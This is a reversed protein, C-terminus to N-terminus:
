ALFTASTSSSSAASITGNTGTAFVQVLKAGAAVGTVKLTVAGAASTQYGVTNFTTDLTAATWNAGADSSVKATYTFPDNYSVPQQFTVTAKGGAALSSVVPATQSTPWLVAGGSAVWSPGSRITTASFGSVPDPFVNYTMEFSDVKKANFMRKGVKALAVRPRLEACYEANSMTGDVGIVMIQRYVTDTTNPKVANYVLEGTEQGAVWSLPQNNRLADVLPTSQMLTFMIEEDDQTIDSRQSRRSQWIKTEDTAFKPNFEVGDESLAGVEYWRGGPNSASTLTTKINNDTDFPTFGNLSTSGDSVWDRVLVSGYLWKRIRTSEDGQGGINDTAYLSSWLQGM